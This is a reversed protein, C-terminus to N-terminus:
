YGYAFIAASCGVIVIVAIVTLVIGLILGVKGLIKGVKAKGAVVGGQAVFSKVKSGAVASFIIGLFSFYFTCAFALGIIGWVLIPTSNPGEAAVPAAYVPTAVPAAYPDVSAVQPAEQPAAAPAAAQQTLEAGCNTCFRQSDDNQTGCNTCFM